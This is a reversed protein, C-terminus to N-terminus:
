IGHIFLIRKINMKIRWWFFNIENLRDQEINYDHVIHDSTVIIKQFVGHSTLPASNLKLVLINSNTNNPNSYIKCYMTAIFHKLTESM